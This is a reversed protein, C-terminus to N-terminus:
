DRNLAVVSSCRRLFRVKYFLSVALSKTYAPAPTPQIEGELNRIAGQLTANQFVSKGVLFAETSSAHVFQGGIGGYVLRASKIIQLQTLEILFGANVIAHANQAVPM